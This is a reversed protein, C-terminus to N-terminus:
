RGNPWVRRCNGSIFLSAVEAEIDGQYIYGEMKKLHDKLDEVQRALEAQSGHLRREESMISVRDVHDWMNLSNKELGEKKAWVFDCHTRLSKM